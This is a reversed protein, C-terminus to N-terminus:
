STETLLQKQPSVSWAGKYRKRPPFAFSDPGGRSGFEAQGAQGAPRM